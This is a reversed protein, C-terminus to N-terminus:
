RTITEVGSCKNTIQKCNGDLHDEFMTMQGDDKPLNTTFKELAEEKPLLEIIAGDSKWRQLEDAADAIFDPDASCIAYCHNDEPDIAIYAMKM